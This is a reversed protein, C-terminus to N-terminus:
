GQYPPRDTTTVAVSSTVGSRWLTLIISQGPSVEVEMYASWDEISFTPHGDVTLIIDMAKHGPSGDPATANVASNLGAEDAPSNLVVDMVLLGTQYLDVNLINLSTIVEPSLAM